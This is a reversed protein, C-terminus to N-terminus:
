IVGKQLMINAYREISGTSVILYAEKAAHYFKLRELTGFEEFAAEEDYKQLLIAYPTWIDPVPEYSRPEMLTVPREVFTDLPFYPLIAELLEPITVGKMDLYRKAHSRAPFNADALIVVDGHGMEMLCHILEPTIIGPIGKLM